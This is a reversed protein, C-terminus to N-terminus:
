AQKLANYCILVDIVRSFDEMGLCDIDMSDGDGTNRSLLMTYTCQYYDYLKNFFTSNNKFYYLIHIKHYINKTVEEAVNCIYNVFFKAYVISFIENKIVSSLDKGYSEMGADHMKEMFHEVIEDNCRESLFESVSTWTRTKDTSSM